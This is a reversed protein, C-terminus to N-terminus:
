WREEILEVLQYYTKQAALGKSTLRVVKFRSSHPDPEVVALHQEQLIGMAMSIAEKSVGSLQPLNRVQVGQADLIRLVDASIALSVNSTQEFEIAFTLLVRSLLTVLSLASLAAHTHAAPQTSLSPDNAPRKDRSFLGYGLIPLCDPLESACQSCLTALSTRLQAFEDKGFRSQWREEVVGFLPQWLKQAQRGAPTPRILTDPLTQKSQHDTPDPAVVIYRWRQMGALNTTTHALRLLEGVTVGETGVFQMCNSWMVLSVLWPAGPSNTMSGYKTTRHPMQHEFENDFEITFAVLLQSLLASLPLPPQSDANAQHVQKSQSM